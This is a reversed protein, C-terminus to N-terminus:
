PRLKVMKFVKEGAASEVKVMYLGRTAASLGRLTFSKGIYTEYATKLITTGAYDTVTVSLWEPVDRFWIHIEDTFPNPGATVPVEPKFAHSEDLIRLAKVFDPLGYGYLSDPNNYRDSSERVANRIDEATAGPSSQMLAACMGSIVPCSFSTGSGAVWLGSSYQVPVSVGPAVIDPKVRGDASYGSSSFDSIRLDPKVAGISLVSDGDSPFLLRQWENNRENGASCVVLIGKSAAIDAAVTIFATNGDTSSYSYNMAPDDFWYYGLSSTIIDAGASDAYEAAAVWYDEEVPFESANDETRFLMYDAGQATGTIINGISGALISLVATGHGHFGYVFDTKGIFDRTLVIGHRQRLPRLSEVLDANLFGADLVAITVGKGNYGTLLLPMGNIPGIPRFVGTPAIDETSGFKDVIGPSKTVPSKVLAVKRVFPLVTLKETEFPTESSFIATNMWKSSLRWTLGKQKVAEIYGPNVPLDNLVLLDAGCKERRAIAGPSLLDEPNYDSFVDVGKNSFYVRYIYADTGAADPLNTSGFSVLSLFLFFQTLVSLRTIM